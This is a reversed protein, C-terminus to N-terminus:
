AADLVRMVTEEHDDGVKLRQCAAGHGLGRKLVGYARGTGAAFAASIAAKEGFRRVIEDRLEDAEPNGQIAAEAFRFGLGADNAADFDRRLCARILAPDVGAKLAGDIVLQACPGCDGDLGSALVAGAWLTTNPGRYQSLMPLMALRLSAGASVDTIEHWYTADYGFDKEFSRIFKHLLWKIM